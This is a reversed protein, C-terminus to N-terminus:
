CSISTWIEDRLNKLTKQEGFVYTYAEQRVQSMQSEPHNSLNQFLSTGKEVSVGCRHLFTTAPTLFFLPKNFTLFDYGISSFDGLYIDTQNLLPYITPVDELFEVHPFREKLDAVEQPMLFVHHPHLKVRLHFADSIEDFITKHVTEFSSYAVRLESKKNPSTWTPAYLVRKKEKSFQFKADFFSQHARYFELRFNGSVMPNKRVKKAKLLDIMQPGYVLIHEEDELREIWFIDWNKDPNGHFSFLSKARVRTTYEAFQFAGHAQRYFDVYVFLDYGSLWPDLSYDEPEALIIEMPPYYLEILSKIWSDTVLIPIELIQCLPVLHDIYSIRYGPLIGIGKM